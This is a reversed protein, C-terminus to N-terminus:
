TAALRWTRGVRGGASLGRHEGRWEECHASKTCQLHKEVELRQWFDHQQRDVRRHLLRHLQGAAGDVEVGQHRRVRLEGRRGAAAGRRRAERPRQRAPRHLLFAAGPRGGAHRGGRQGVRRLQPHRHALHRVLPPREHRLLRHLDVHQLPDHRLLLVGVGVDLEDVDEAGQVAVAGAARGHGAPCTQLYVCSIQRERGRM